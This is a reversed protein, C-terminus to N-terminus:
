GLIGELIAYFKAKAKREIWPSHGCEELLIFKFDKLVGSLPGKVGEAPHPDYNGHIAVVPSEIYEGLEVLESSRRVEVAESWIRRYMEPDIENRPPEDTPLPEYSDAKRTLKKVRALSEKYMDHPDNELRRLLAELESREAGNLRKLRTETIDAAYKESFPPSGVMIIKEVMDSHIAALIYSLWAGWSHGVLKLPPKCQQILIDRLEDVQEEITEARQFPELVGRESSLKKAVPEMAGSAGPGGHLVAVDFPAEGHKRFNENM